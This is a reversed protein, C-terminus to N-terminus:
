QEINVKEAGCNRLRIAIADATNQNNCPITIKYKNYHKEVNRVGVSLANGSVSEIDAGDPANSYFLESSSQTTSNILAAGATFLENRVPEYDFNGNDSRDNYREGISDLVLEAAYESGFDTDQFASIYVNGSKVGLDSMNMIAADIDDYSRFFGTIKM